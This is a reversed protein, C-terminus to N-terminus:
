FLLWRAVKPRPTVESVPLLGPLRTDEITIQAGLAELQLRIEQARARELGTFLRQPLPTHVDIAVPGSEAAPLQRVFDLTRARAVDNRYGLLVVDFRREVAM